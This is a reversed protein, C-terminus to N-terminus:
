FLIWNECKYPYICDGALKQPAIVIKNENGNLYAGWFSFTSNAIINHKCLSMLQMDRFSNEEVNNDIFCMSIDFNLINKALIIDDSFVFFTPDKIKTKIYEIAKKYYQGDCIDYSYQIYDGARLHISVSDTNKIMDALEKNIESLEGTFLFDKLLSTKIDSFYNENAWVGKFYYSYLPNLQFVEPYYIVANEQRIYSTKQGIICRRLSYLCNLLRYGTIGKPCRESYKAVDELQCLDMHIGFVRSLEFGNHVGSDIYSLDALVYIDPYHFQLAKFFAYQFMQNGLGGEFSVILM